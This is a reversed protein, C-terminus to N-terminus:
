EMRLKQLGSSLATTKGRWELVGTLGPPLEIVATLTQGDAEVEARVLGHPSAVTASAKKLPGLMPRIVVHKFGFAAPRIGVVSACVHYYPHSSWAHCDSRTDGLQEPFTRFGEQQLGYWVPLRTFLLDAVGTRAATEFLYHTFYLQCRTWGDPPQVMMEALRKARDTALRGTLVALVQTQESFKTKGVDDALVDGVSFVRDVAAAVAAAHRQYRGVLEGEGAFGELEALGDLALVLQLNIAASVGGAGGEGGEGGPPVGGPFAADVYNWGPLSRCLGDEGVALLFQDIVARAGPLLSRVFTKDGASAARHLAFDRVMCVWWLSFPPIIQGSPGTNAYTLGTQNGRTRDFAVLAKRALRDDPSIAYTLLAQVRTDGVYMLQEYYPCDMYTEHMCALLGSLCTPLIANLLPEDTSAHGVVELPYGTPRVGLFTLEVPQEAAVVTLEAYRGCRWWLPMLLRDEGDLVYRDGLGRFYKGDVQDRRGKDHRGASQSLSEAFRLEVTAGQGGGVKMEPYGCVYAEFDLIARLKGGPQVIFPQKGTLAESVGGAATVDHAAMEVPGKPDTSTGSGMAAYRVNPFTAALEKMPPLLGPLTWHAGEQVYMWFGNNGREGVEAAQWAPDNLGGDVEFGWPFTACDLDFSPGVGTHEGTMDRGQRFSYGPLTRGEWAATGTGFLKQGEETAPCVIVGPRVSAQAWPRFTGLEWFRVVILHEGPELTAEYTEYYWSTRDGRESGRGVRQGDVFLEYREDATVYVQTTLPQDVHFKCRMAGVWPAKPQGALHVWRCPWEGSAAWPHGHDTRAFAQLKDNAIRRVQNM